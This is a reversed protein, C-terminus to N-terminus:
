KHESVNLCSKVLSSMPAILHLVIVTCNLFSFLVLSEPFMLMTLFLIDDLSIVQPSFIWM